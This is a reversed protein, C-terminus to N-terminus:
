AAAAALDAVLQARTAPSLDTGAAYEPHDVVVRAPADGCLGDVAGPSLDFRLFHVSFTHDAPGEDPPPVDVGPCVEGGIELRVRDHLGHLRALESRVRDPDAIEILLTATLSHETPLLRQYAAIEQEAAAADTVREVYLMEQAQYRLTDANEFEVAVMDGVQVRRERRLEIAAARRQPRQEAYRAPDLVLDSTSLTTM